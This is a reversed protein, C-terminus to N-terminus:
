AVEEAPVGASGITPLSAEVLFGGGPGPGATLSGGLAAARESMGPIGNGTGDSTSSDARGTDEIRLTLARPAYGIAVTATAGAGAHRRVNTLAEQVIRYAARDVEAPVSRAPGERVVSVQLGAAGAEEALQDVDSLGPSPTRPAQEDTPRLTALVGRVERLAEASAVKIADLAGRVEDPRSELLHLAVGARVNILSLHHGVVDHLERAIRLREESAQRRSQEQRARAAEARARAIEQFHQGRIRAAEALTVAVAAVIATILYGGLNPRVRAVGGISGWLLTLAVYGGYAAGTVAWILEPKSRRVASFLAVIAALAFPGRPLNLALYLVTAALTIAYVLLAQSRRFVLAAPGIILLVYAAAVPESGAQYAAINTGGIQIFAILLPLFLSSGRVRRRPWPVLSADDQDSPWAEWRRQARRAQERRARARETWRAGSSDADVDCRYPVV